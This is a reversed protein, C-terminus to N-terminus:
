FDQRNEDIKERAWASFNMPSEQIMNQQDERISVSQRVLNGGKGCEGYVAEEPLHNTYKDHPMGVRNPSHIDRHCADCVVLLNGLDNNKRNGDIHHAVVERTSDCIQCEEGYEEIAKERYHAM